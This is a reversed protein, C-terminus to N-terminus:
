HMLKTENLDKKYVKEVYRMDFAEFPTSSYSDSLGTVDILAKLHLSKLFTTHFVRCLLLACCKARYCSYGQNLIITFVQKM